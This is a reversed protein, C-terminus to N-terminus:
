LAVRIALTVLVGHVKSRSFRYCMSLTHSNSVDDGVCSKMMKTPSPRMISSILGGPLEGKASWTAENAVDNAPCRVRPQVIEGSCRRIFVAVRIFEASCNSLQLRQSQENTTMM